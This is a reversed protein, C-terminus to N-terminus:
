VFIKISADLEKWVILSIACSNIYSSSSILGSGYAMKGCDQCKKNEIRGSEVEQKTLYGLEYSCICRRKIVETVDENGQSVFREREKRVSRKMIENKMEENM